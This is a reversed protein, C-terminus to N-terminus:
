KLHVVISHITTTGINKGSYPRKESILVTEGTKRTVVKKSGDAFTYEVKGGAVYHYVWGERSQMATADGPRTVGDTVILKENEAITKITPQGAAQGMAMPKDMKMGQAFATSSVALTLAMASICNLAIRSTYAM